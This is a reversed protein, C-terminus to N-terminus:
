GGLHSCCADATCRPRLVTQATPDRCAPCVQNHIYFSWAVDFPWAAAHAHRLSVVPRPPDELSDKGGAPLITLCLATAEGEAHRAGANVNGGQRRMGPLM